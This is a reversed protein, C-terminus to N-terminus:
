VQILSQFAGSRYVEHDAEHMELIDALLLLSLALDKAMM